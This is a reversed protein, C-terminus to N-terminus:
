ETVEPESDPEPDPAPDPEPAPEPDPIPDPTLDPAGTTCTGDAYVVMATTGAPVPCSQLEDGLMYLITLGTDSYDFSVGTLETSLYVECILDDANETLDITVMQHFFDGQTEQASLRLVWTQTLDQSCIETINCASCTHQKNNGTATWDSFSHGAAVPNTKEVRKCRSCTRETWGDTECTAEIVTAEGYSHGLPDVFDQIDGKGCACSYLSYGQTDCAPSVTKYKVFEHVHPATTEPQSSSPPPAVSSSEPTSTSSPTSEAPAPTGGLVLNLLGSVRDLTILGLVITLVLLTCMLIFMIHKTTLKM